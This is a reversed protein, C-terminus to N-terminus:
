DQKGWKQSEAKLELLSSLAKSASECSKKLAYYTTVMKQYESNQPASKIIEENIEIFKNNLTSLVMVNANDRMAKIMANQAASYEDYRASARVIKDHMDGLAVFCENKVNDLEYVLNGARTINDELLSM